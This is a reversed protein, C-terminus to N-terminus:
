HFVTNQVVPLYVTVNTGKGAESEINITGSHRTLIGEAISLGLGKGAGVERTTFFPIFAKKLVEESMGVGDDNIKVVIMEGNDNSVQSTSIHINGDPKVASIANSIIQYFCQNISRPECLYLPLESFERTVNVSGTATIALTEDICKNIDVEDVDATDRRSFVKLSDVIEKIREINRISMNIKRHMVSISDGIKFEDLLSMYADIFEAPSASAAMNMTYRIFHEFVGLTKSFFNVSAKVISLPNNIEHALGASLTTLGAMRDMELVKVEDKRLQEAKEQAKNEFLSISSDISQQLLNHERAKRKSIDRIIGITYRRGEINVSSVSLEIPFEERDKNLAEIEVIEGALIGQGTEMYSIMGMIHKRQYREPIILEYLKRGVAEEKSFGFVIEATKNWIKVDGEGDIMIFADQVVISMQEYLNM